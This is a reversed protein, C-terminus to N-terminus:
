PSSRGPTTEHRCALRVEETRRERHSPDGDAGDDGAVAAPKGCTETTRGASAGERHRGAWAKPALWTAPAPAVAAVGRRLGRRFAPAAQRLGCRARLVRSVERGAVRPCYCRIGDTAFADVTQAASKVLDDYADMQKVSADVIAGFTGQILGTVFAPFDVSALLDSLGAVEAPVAAIAGALGDAPIGEPEALYVGIRVMDEALRRQVEAPLERHAPNADLLRRVERRVVTVTDAVARGM